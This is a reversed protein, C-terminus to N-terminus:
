DCECYCDGPFEGCEMCPTVWVDEDYENESDTANTDVKKDFTM